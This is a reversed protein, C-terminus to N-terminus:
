IRSRVPRSFTVVAKKDQWFAKWPSVYDAAAVTGDIYGGKITLPNLAPGITGGTKIGPAGSSAQRQRRAMTVGLVM